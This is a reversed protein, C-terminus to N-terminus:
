NKEIKKAPTMGGVPMTPAAPAVGGDESPADKPTMPVMRFAPIVVRKTGLEEAKKDAKGAAAKAENAAELDGLKELIKAKNELYFFVEEPRTENNCAYESWRLARRLLGEENTVSLFTSAHYDFQKWPDEHGALLNYDLMADVVGAYQDYDANRNHRVVLARSLLEDRQAIDSDRLLQLMAEESALDFPREPTPYYYSNKQIQDNFVKYIKADVEETGNAAAISKRNEVFVRFAPSAPDTLFFKLVEWYAPDSYNEKVLSALYDNATEQEQQEMGALRLSRLYSFMMKASRDGQDYKKQLDRLNEGPTLALKAYNLFEGEDTYAGVIRHIIEGNGNIFLYTPFATVKYQRKLKDGEGKELDYKVNIFNKNFYNAEEGRTFVQKDMMKCPGCWTTYGDFFIIKNKEKAEQLVDAFVPDEQFNIYHKGADQANLLHCFAVLALGLFFKLKTM